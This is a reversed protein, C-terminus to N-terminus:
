SYSQKDQSSLNSVSTERELAPLTTQGSQELLSTIFRMDDKPIPPPPLRKFFVPAAHSEQVEDSQLLHLRQDKKRRTDKRIRRKRSM